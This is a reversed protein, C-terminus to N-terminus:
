ELSAAEVVTCGCALRHDSRTDTARLNAYTIEEECRACTTGVLGNAWDVLEIDLPGASVAEDASVETAVEGDVLDDEEVGGTEDVPDQDGADTVDGGATEPADVYRPWALVLVVLAVFVWAGDVHPVLPGVVAGLVAAVLGVALLTAVGSAETRLSLPASM